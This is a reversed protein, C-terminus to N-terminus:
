QGRRSLRGGFTSGAPVGANDLDVLVDEIQGIWTDGNYVKSGIVKSARASRAMAADDIGAISTGTETPTSAPKQSEQAQATAVAFVTAFLVASANRM